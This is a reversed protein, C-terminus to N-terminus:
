MEKFECRKILEKGKGAHALYRTFVIKLAKGKLGVLEFITPSLRIKKAADRLALSFWSRLSICRAKHSPSNHPDQRNRPNLHM